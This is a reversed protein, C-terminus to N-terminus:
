TFLEAIEAAQWTDFDDPVQVQGRLQGLQIKPREVPSIPELRAIPTGSRAIVFREGTEVQALLRSLNTKAQHVGVMQVTIVKM